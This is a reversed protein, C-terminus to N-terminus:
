GRRGRAAERQGIVDFYSSDDNFQVIKDNIAGETNMLDTKM